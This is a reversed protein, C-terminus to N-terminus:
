GPVNVDAAIFDGRRLCPRFRQTSDASASWHSASALWALLGSLRARRSATSGRAPAEALAAQSRRAGASRRRACEFSGAARRNQPMRRSWRRLFVCAAACRRDAADPIGRNGLDGLADLPTKSRRDLAFVGRSRRRLPDRPCRLDAPLRPLQRVLSACLAPWSALDRKRRRRSPWRRRRGRGSCCGALERATCAIDHIERHEHHTPPGDLTVTQWGNDYDVIRFRRASGFEMGTRPRFSRSCRRAAICRPSWAGLCRRDAARHAVRQDPHEGAGVDVRETVRGDPRRPAFEPSRCAGEDSM